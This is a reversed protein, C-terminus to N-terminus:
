VMLDGHEGVLAIGNNLDVSRCFGGHLHKLVNQILFVKVATIQLQHNLTDVNKFVTQFDVEAGVNVCQEVCVFPLVGYIKIGARFIDFVLGYPRLYVDVGALNLEDLTGPVM